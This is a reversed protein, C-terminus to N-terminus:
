RINPLDSDGNLCANLRGVLITEIVADLRQNQKILENYKALSGALDGQM